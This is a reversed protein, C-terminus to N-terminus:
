MNVVSDRQLWSASFGLSCRALTICSSAVFASYADPMEVVSKLGLSFCVPLRSVTGTSTAALTRPGVSDIFIGDCMQSSVGGTRIEPPGNKQSGGGWGKEDSGGNTVSTLVSICCRKTM